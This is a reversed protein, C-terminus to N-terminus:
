KTLIRHIENDCDTLEIGQEIRFNKEIERIEEILKWLSYKKILEENIVILNNLWEIYNFSIYKKEVDTHIIYGRTNAWNNKESHVAEFFDWSIIEGTDKIYFREIKKIISIWFINNLWDTFLSIIKKERDDTYPNKNLKM